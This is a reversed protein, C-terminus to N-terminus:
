SLMMHEMCLNNVNLNLHLVFTHTFVDRNKAEANLANTNTYVPKAQQHQPPVVGVVEQVAVEQVAVEQVGVGIGVNEAL